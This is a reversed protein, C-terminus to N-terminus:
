MLHRRLRDVIDLPMTIRQQDKHDLAGLLLELLNRRAPVPATEIPVGSTVPQVLLDSMAVQNSAAWREIALRTAKGDGLYQPLPQDSRTVLFENSGLQTVPALRDQALGREVDVIRVHDAPIETRFALWVGQKFAPPGARKVPSFYVELDETLKADPPFLGIITERGPRREIRLRDKLFTDIYTRLGIGTEAANWVRSDALISGVSSLLTARGTNDWHSKVAALIANSLAENEGASVAM